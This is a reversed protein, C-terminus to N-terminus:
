LNLAQAGPGMCKISIPEIPPPYAPFHPSTPHTLNSLALISQHVSSCLDNQGQSTCPLGRALAVECQARSLGACSRTGPTNVLTLDCFRSTCDQALPPM